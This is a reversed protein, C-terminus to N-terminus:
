LRGLTSFFSLMSDEGGLLKFPAMDFVARKVEKSIEKQLLIHEDELAPFGIPTTLEREEIDEKFLQQYFNMVM